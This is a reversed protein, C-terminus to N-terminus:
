LNLPWEIDYAQNSKVFNGPVGDLYKPFTKQDDYKNVSKAVPAKPVKKPMKWM